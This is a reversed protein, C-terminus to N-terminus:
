ASAERAPSPRERGSPPADRGAAAEDDPAAKEAGTKLDRWTTKGDRKIELADGAATFRVQPTVGSFNVRGPGITQELTLTKEQARAAFALLAAALIAGGASRAVRLPEIM